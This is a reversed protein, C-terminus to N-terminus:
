ADDDSDVVQAIIKKVPKASSITKTSTKTINPQTSPASITSPKPLKVKALAAKPKTNEIVIDKEILGLQKAEAISVPVFLEDDKKISDNDSQIYNLEKLDTLDIGYKYAFQSITTTEKLNTM